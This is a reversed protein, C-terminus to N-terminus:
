AVFRSRHVLDVGKVESLLQVQRDRKMTEEEVRVWDTRTEVRRAGEGVQSMRELFCTFNARTTASSVRRRLQSTIIALEQKSGPRGRAM